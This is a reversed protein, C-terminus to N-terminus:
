CVIQQSLPFRKRGLKWMQILHTRLLIGGAKWLHRRGWDRQTTLSCAISLVSTHEESDQPHSGVSALPINQIASWWAITDKYTPPPFPCRLNGKISLSKIKWPKVWKFQIGPLGRGDSYWWVLCLSNLVHFVPPCFYETIKDWLCKNEETNVVVISFFFVINKFEM